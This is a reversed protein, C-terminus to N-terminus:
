CLVVRRPVQSITGGLPKDHGLLKGLGATWLGLAFDWGFPKNKKYVHVFNVLPESLEWVKADEGM